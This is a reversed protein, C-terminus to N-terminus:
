PLVVKLRPAVASTDSAVPWAKSFAPRTRSALLASSFGADFGAVLGAVFGVVFGSVADAFASLM